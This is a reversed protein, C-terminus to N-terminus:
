IVVTETVESITKNKKGLSGKPRGRGRKVVRTTDEITSRQGNLIVEVM